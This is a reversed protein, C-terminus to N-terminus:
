AGTLRKPGPLMQLLDEENPMPDVNVRHLPIGAADLAAAKRADAEQRRPNDHSRDDLELVAVVRFDKECVVFDAYLRNFRNYWTAFNQGKKVGLFAPLSVQALIVYQPFARILRQYLIQEPQSLVRRAYVPWADEASRDTSRSFRRLVATVVAFVLLLLILGILAKM